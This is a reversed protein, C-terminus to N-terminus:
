SASASFRDRAARSQALSGAVFSACRRPRLRRIPALRARLALKNHVGIPRREAMRQGCSVAVPAAHQGGGEIGHRAHARPMTTEVPASWDLQASVLVVTMATRPMLTPRAADAWSDSPAANLAAFAETAVALDHLARQRPQSAEAAECGM